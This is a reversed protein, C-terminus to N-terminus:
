SFQLGNFETMAKEPGYKFWAVICEAAKKVIKKLDPIEEPDFKSLVFDSTGEAKRNKSIGIRLRPFESTGLHEIISSVGKHGGSSGKEKLRLNGLKLDIDDYVILLNHPKINERKFIKCVAEGSLNMYTQPMFLATKEDEFSGKGLIGNYIKKKTPIGLIKAVEKVVLFGINHRTNRYKFGPNGLGM